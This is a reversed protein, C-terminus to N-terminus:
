SFSNTVSMNFFFQSINKKNIHCCAIQYFLFASIDSHVVYLSYTFASIRLMMYLLVCLFLLTYNFVTLVALLASHRETQLVISSEYM